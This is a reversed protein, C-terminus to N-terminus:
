RRDESYVGLSPSNDAIESLRDLEAEILSLRYTIRERNTQWQQQWAAPPDHPPAETESLVPATVGEARASLQILADALPSHNRANHDPDALRLLRM